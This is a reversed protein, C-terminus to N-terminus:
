NGGLVAFGCEVAQDVLFQQAFLHPGSIKLLGASSSTALRTSSIRFCYTAARSRRPTAPRAQRAAADGLIFQLVRTVQLKVQHAQHVGAKAGVDVDVGLTNLTIVVLFEQRLQPLGASFSTGRASTVGLILSSSVWCFIFWSSTAHSCFRREPLSIRLRVASELPSNCHGIGAGLRTPALPFARSIRRKRHNSTNPPSAQYRM